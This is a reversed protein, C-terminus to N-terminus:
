RPIVVSGFVYEDLSHAWVLCVRELARETPAQAILVASNLIPHQVTM